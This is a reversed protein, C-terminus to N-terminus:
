VARGSRRAAYSVEVSKLAGNVNQYAYPAGLRAEGTEGLQVWISGDEQVELTVGEHRIAVQAPDAGPQVMWDEKWGPGPVDARDGPSRPGVRLDIGPWVDHLKFRTEPVLGEAWKSPDQGKYINVRHSAETMAEHVPQASAGEWTMRWGHSVLDGSPATAGEFHHDWLEAYGDGAMWVNMGDSELWTVGGAWEARMQAPVDWQGENPLWHLGQNQASLPACCALGLVVWVCAQLRTMM